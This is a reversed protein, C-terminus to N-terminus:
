RAHTVLQKVAAFFAGIAESYEEEDYEEGSPVALRRLAGRFHAHAFSWTGTGSQWLVCHASDDGGVPM